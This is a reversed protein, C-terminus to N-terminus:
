GARALVVVSSSAVAGGVVLGESGAGVPEDANEVSAEGVLAEVVFGDGPGGFVGEGSSM